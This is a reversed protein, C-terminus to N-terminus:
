KRTIVSFERAREMPLWHIRASQADRHPNERPGYQDLIQMAPKNTAPDIGYRVFVAAHNGRSNSDYDGKANWGSAIATGPKLPPNGDGQIDEGRHWQGTPGVEPVAAKVLAVCEKGEMYQRDAGFALWGGNDKARQLIDDPSGKAVFPANPGSNMQESADAIQINDSYKPDFPDDEQHTNYVDIVLPTPASAASRDDETASTDEALGAAKM